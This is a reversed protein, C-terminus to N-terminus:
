ISLLIRNDRERNERKLKMTRRLIRNDRVVCKSGILSVNGKSIVIVKRVKDMERAGKKKRGFIDM